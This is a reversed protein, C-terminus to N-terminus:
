KGVGIAEAEEEFELWQRHEETEHGVFKKTELDDVVNFNYYEM